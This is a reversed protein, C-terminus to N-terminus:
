LVQAESLQISDEQSVKKLVNYCINCVVVTERSAAPATAGFVSRPVKEHCCRSCFHNGCHRCYRRRKLVSHFVANCLTCNTPLAKNRNRFEALKSVVRTKLQGTRSIREKRELNEDSGTDEESEADYFVCKDPAPLHARHFDGGELIEAEEEGESDSSESLSSDADAQTREPTVQHNLYGDEQKSSSEKRVLEETVPEKSSSKLEEIYQVAVKYFEENGIFVCSVGVIVSWRVPLLFVGLVTGLSICFIKISTAADEWVLIAQLDDLYCRVQTTWQQLHSIFQKFEAITNHIQLVDTGQGQVGEQSSVGVGPKLKSRFGRASSQLMGLGSMGGLILLALLFLTDSTALYCFVVSVLWCGVSLWPRKWRAISAGIEWCWRVPEAFQQLRRINQMLAGLDCKEIDDEKKRYRHNMKRAAPQM